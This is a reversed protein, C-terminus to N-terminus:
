DNGFNTAPGRVRELTEAISEPEPEERKARLVACLNTGHLGVLSCMNNLGLPGFHLNDTAPVDRRFHPAHRRLNLPWRGGADDVGAGNLLGRRVLIDMIEETRAHRTANDDPDCDNFGKQRDRAADSEVMRKLEAWQTATVGVDLFRPPMLMWNQKAKESLIRGTRRLGHAHLPRTQASEGANHVRLRLLYVQATERRAGRERSTSMRNM